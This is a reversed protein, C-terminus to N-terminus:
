FPCFMWEDMKAPSDNSAPRNSEGFFSVVVCCLFMLSGIQYLNTNAKLFKRCKRGDAGRRMCEIFLSCMKQVEWRSSYLVFGIKKETGNWANKAHARKSNFSVEVSFKSSFVFWFWFRFKCAFVNEPILHHAKIAILEEGNSNQHSNINHKEWMIVNGNNADFTTGLVLFRVMKHKISRGRSMRANKQM